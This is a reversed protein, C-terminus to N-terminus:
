NTKNIFVYKEVCEAYQCLVKEYKKISPLQAALEKEAEIQKTNSAESKSFLTKWGQKLTMKAKAIFLGGAVNIEAVSDTDECPPYFQCLYQRAVLEYINKESSSLRDVCSSKETPIIAHHAEVKGDAWAKSCLSQDANLAAQNLSSSTKAIANIVNGHHGYHDKPLYRSDSRPYTILKHREYLAQCTDLVQQASMGFHQAGDIQLALLNYPLPAVQQKNKKEVKIVECMQEQARSVVNEALKKVLVRGNKDLYPRCAESPKWKAIFTDQQQTQLHVFVEYFPKSVVNAIEIDDLCALEKQTNLNQDKIKRDTNEKPKSILHSYNIVYYAYRKEWFGWLCQHCPSALAKLNINNESFIKGHCKECVESDPKATKHQDLIKYFKLIRLLSITLPRVWDDTKTSVSVSAKRNPKYAHLIPLPVMLTSAYKGTERFFKHVLLYDATKYQIHSLLSKERETGTVTSKVEIYNGNHVIDFGKNNVKLSDGPLLLETLAEGVCGMVMPFDCSEDTIRPEKGLSYITKAVEKMAIPKSMKSLREDSDVIDRFLEGKGEMNSVHSDWDKPTKNDKLIHFPIKQSSSM